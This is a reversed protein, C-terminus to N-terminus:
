GFLKSLKTAIMGQVNGDKEFKSYEDTKAHDQPVYGTSVKIDNVVQGLVKVVEKLEEENEVKVISAFQELGKDKLSLNVEKQWLDQERQQLDLEEQTPEKPLKGKVEELEAVIPNLEQEQWEAKANQIAEDVQEQTFNDEAM